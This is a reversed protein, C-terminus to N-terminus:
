KWGVSAYDLVQFVWWRPTSTCLRSVLSPLLGLSTPSGTCPSSDCHRACVTLATSSDTNIVSGRLDQSGTAKGLTGLDARPEAGRRKRQIRRGDGVGWLQARCPNTPLGSNLPCCPYAISDRTCFLVIEWGYISTLGWSSPWAQTWNEALCRGGGVWSRAVPWWGPKGVSRAMCILRLALRSLRGYQSVRSVKDAWDPAGRCGPSEQM